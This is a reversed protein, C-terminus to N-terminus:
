RQFAAVLELHATWPFQDIPTAGVLRFGGDALTRADRAFTAPNCSVAVVLPLDSKALEASQAKAGARPPDFLAVDGGELEEALVPRRELDRREATVRGFLGCSRAAAELAAVAAAEGEVAHVRHGRGALPFTFTGVGSFLDAVTESTAPIADLVAAVLAAEGEPTAQLFVGPPLTVAVGGFSLRPPRRELLPQPTGGAVAISLRALDAAEALAALAERGRLDPEAPLSLLLDLGGDTLTLALSLEKGEPLVAAFAQRLPQLAAFLRSDLILCSRIDELRHSARGHFGLLVRNGNRMAALTARRRSGPPLAVLPAVLSEAEVFGRRQLAEVLLGRKWRRYADLSLHQLTCGGCPGFHPCPPEVREASAQLLELVEGRQGEAGGTGLRAVVREGPLIQPLFVVGEDLRAQGDGQAGLTEVTLELQRGGASRARRAM